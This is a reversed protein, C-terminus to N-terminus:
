GLAIQYGQGKINKILNKSTKVRFRKIFTRLREDSVEEDEWLTSKIIKDDIIEHSYQLLLQIFDTDRKSLTIYKGDKYLNKSTKNFRFEDTLSILKNGLKSSISYIYDLLEDPDFPKIFYKIVGVDIANLLKDKDSFASLIIIPTNQNIEKLEKAMELGTMEPMMIDTIVLDPSIKLFKEIGEKGNSAITFSYFSDGIANKLLAALNGEDEVLLIKLEKLFDNEM